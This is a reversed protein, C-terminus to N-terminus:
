MIGLANHKLKQEFGGEEDTSSESNICRSLYPSGSLPAPSSLEPGRAEGGCHGLEKTPTEQFALCFNGDALAQEWAGSSYANCAPLGGSEEALFYVDPCLYTRTGPFM